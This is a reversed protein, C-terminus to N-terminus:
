HISYYNRSYAQVCDQICNSVDKITSLFSNVTYSGIGLYNIVETPKVMGGPLLGEPCLKAQVALFKQTSYPLTDNIKKCTRAFEVLSGRNRNDSVEVITFFQDFYDLLDKNTISSVIDDIEKVYLALKHAENRNEFCLDVLVNCFKEKTTSRVEALLNQIREQCHIRKVSEAPEIMGLVNEVVSKKNCGFLFMYYGTSLTSLLFIAPLLFPTLIYQSEPFVFWATTAASVILFLASLGLQIKKRYTQNVITNVGVSAIDIM